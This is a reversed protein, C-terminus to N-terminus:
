MLAQYYILLTTFKSPDSTWGLIRTFKAFIGPTLALTKKPAITIPTDFDNAFLRADPSVQLIVLSDSSGINHIFFTTNKAFATPFVRSDNPNCCCDLYSTEEVLKCNFNYRYMETNCCNHDIHNGDKYNIDNPYNNYSSSDKFYNMPTHFHPSTAEKTFPESHYYYPNYSTYSNKM